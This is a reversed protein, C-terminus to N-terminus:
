PTVERLTGVATFDDLYQVLGEIAKRTDTDPEEVNLGLGYNEAKERCAAEEADVVFGHTPYKEVLRGAIRKAEELEYNARMLRMAYEEAVKLERSKKTYDVTDIKELLPRVFTASYNLMHPLLTDIKKGTRRLLFPMIQDIATMAFANLRELSQVADLASGFDERERDLMQVDLPGLEADRGLLLQSAGLAVLTAASKAYQPVIVTFQDSRRQFFRAIHFACHADGGPSELLLAVPKGDEIEYRAAQFAKFVKRSISGWNDSQNQILFWLPMKIADQLKLIADAHIKSLPANEGPFISAYYKKTTQAKSGKPKKDPSGNQPVPPMAANSAEGAQSPSELVPPAASLITTQNHRM